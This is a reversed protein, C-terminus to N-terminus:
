PAPTALWPIGRIGGAARLRSRLLGQADQADDLMETAVARLPDKDSARAPQGTVEQVRGLLQFYQWRVEAKQEPTYRLIPGRLM